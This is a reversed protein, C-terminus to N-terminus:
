DRGEGVDMAAATGMADLVIRGLGRGHIEAVGELGGNDEVKFDGVASM